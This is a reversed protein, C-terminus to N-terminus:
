RSRDDDSAMSSSSAPLPVYDRYSPADRGGESPSLANAQALTNEGSARRNQGISGKWQPRVPM